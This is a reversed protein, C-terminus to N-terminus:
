GPPPTPSPVDPDPSVKPHSLLLKKLEILLWRLQDPTTEYRVGITTLLRFRDRTGFNQHIGDTIDLPYEM